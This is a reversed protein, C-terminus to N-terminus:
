SKISCENFDAEKPRHTRYKESLGELRFHGRIGFCGNIFARSREALLAAMRQNRPVVFYIRVSQRHFTFAWAEHIPSENSLLEIGERVQESLGGKRRDQHCYLILSKGQALYRRIEDVFVYKPGAKWFRKRENLTLGNDPDLFVLQALEIKKFAEQCWTARVEPRSDVPTEEFDLHNEYFLTNKPLIDDERIRAVRRDNSEVIKGLAIFLKRDCEGLEVTGRQSSLYQIFKGDKGKDACKTLYWVVGLVLDDNALFRLLAYKGFDGIDGVYKDKM